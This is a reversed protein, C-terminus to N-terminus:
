RKVFHFELNILAEQNISIDIKDINPKNISYIVGFFYTKFYEDILYFDLGVFNKTKQNFLKFLREPPYTIKVPNNFYWVLIVLTFIIQISLIISSISKFKEFFKTLKKKFNKKKNKFNM